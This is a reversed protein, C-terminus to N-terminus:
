ALLIPVKWYKHNYVQGAGPLLASYLAARNARSRSAATLSDPKTSQGVTVNSLFLTFTVVLFFSIRCFTPFARYRFNSSSRSM